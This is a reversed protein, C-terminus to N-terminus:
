CRLLTACVAEFVMQRWEFEQAVLVLVDCAEPVWLLSHCQDGGWDNNWMVAMQVYVDSVQFHVLMKNGEAM